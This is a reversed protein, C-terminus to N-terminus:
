LESTLLSTTADSDYEDSGGSGGGAELVAYQYEYEYAYEESDTRGDGVDVHSSFVSDPDALLEAPSGYEVLEGADVVMISDFDIVTHLRHAVSLVTRDSMINRIAAQLVRDSEMDLHASAEDIVLVPAPRLLARALCLLQRQGVSFNSGSESVAVELGSGVVDSSESMRNVASRMSVLDLADWIDADSAHDFPDLNARLTGAFLVPDQPVVALASRLDGGM